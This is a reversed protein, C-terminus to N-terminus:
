SGNSNANIQGGQGPSVLGSSTGFGQQTSEDGGQTTVTSTSASATTGAWVSVGIISAVSAGIVGLATTIRRASRAGSERINM